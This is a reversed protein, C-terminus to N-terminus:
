VKNASYLSAFALTIIGNSQVDHSTTKRIKPINMPIRKKPIIGNGIYNVNKIAVNSPINQTL